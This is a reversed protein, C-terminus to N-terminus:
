ARDPTTEEHISSLRTSPKECRNHAIEGSDFNQESEIVWLLGESSVIFRPVGTHVCAFIDCLVRFSGTVWILTRDIISVSVFGAHVMLQTVVRDCSAKGPSLAGFKKNSFDWILCYLQLFFLLICVNVNM